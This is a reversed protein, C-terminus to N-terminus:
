IIIELLELMDTITYNPQIDTTNEENNPNFWVSTVGTLNACLVDALISDGVFIFDSPDENGICRLMAREDPKAYWNDWTFVRSFYELYGFSKLVKVQSKYFWDTLVYLRINAVNLHHLIRDVSSDRINISCSEMAKILMDGNLGNEALMPIKKDFYSAIKKKTIKKGIFPKRISEMADYFAISFDESYCINLYEALFKTEDSRDHRILTDDLDFIITKRM